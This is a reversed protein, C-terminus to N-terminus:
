ALDRNILGSGALGQWQWATHCQDPGSGGGPLRCMVQLKQAVSSSSRSGVDSRLASMIHVRDGQM